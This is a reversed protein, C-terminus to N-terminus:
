QNMRTDAALLSEAHDIEAEITRLTEDNIVSTDRLSHLEGREAALASRRLRREDADISEFEARHDANASQRRMQKEYDALLRQAYAVDGPKRARGIAARMAAAAAQAMANRAIREEREAAGDRPLNLMRIITPLTLGNICLTLVITTGALLVILDRGPFAAGGASMLPISLAAALTVSGRIGAWGVLFVARPDRWGERERLRKSLMLPLYTGPYVWVLRVATIIAYLILAYGALSHWSERPMGLMVPKLQLGLLLFALGNLLYLAMAWVEWAHRRTAVSLHRSDHVGAYLGATVVALVGSVQLAEAVLYAAYPTLLSIITQIKPDDVCLDILAVRAYGIIVAVAFGALAGGGALLVLQGTADLWSFAGTAVTAVAFKFAVLGSADNILSEGNVIHTVRPPLPLRSTMSATAVADTPSVIAGLAFAAALPLSPILWHMLYGVAVVTAAVLGFALLLIPRLFALFERKPFLWGDSFLLPPVFLLFFLQPDVEVHSLGPIYALAAGGAVLLISLPVPLWKALAGIAAVALFLTLAIEVTLM